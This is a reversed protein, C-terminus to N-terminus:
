PLAAEIADLRAQLTTYTQQYRVSFLLNGLEQATPYAAALSTLTTIVAGDWDVSYLADINTTSISPNGGTDVTVYYTGAANGVLTLTAPDSGVALLQMTPKWMVGGTIALTVNDANVTARYSDMGIRVPVTKGFLAALLVGFSASAGTSGSFYTQLQNVAAALVANNSNLTNIYDTDGISFNKLTIM